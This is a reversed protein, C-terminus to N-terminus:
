SMNYSEFTTAQEHVPENTLLAYDRFILIRVFVSLVAFLLLAFLVMHVVDHKTCSYGFFM